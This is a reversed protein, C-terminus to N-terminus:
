SVKRTKSSAAAKTLDTLATLKAMAGALRQTAAVQGANGEEKKANQM